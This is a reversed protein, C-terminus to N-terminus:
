KVPSILEKYYSENCEFVSNEVEQIWKSINESGPNKINNLVDKEFNSDLKNDLLIQYWNPIIQILLPTFEKRM